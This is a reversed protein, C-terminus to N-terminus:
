IGFNKHGWLYVDHPFTQHLEGLLGRRYLGFYVLHKALKRIKPM